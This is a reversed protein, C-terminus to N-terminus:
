IYTLIPEYKIGVQEDMGETCASDSSGPSLASEVQCTSAKHWILRKGKVKMETKLKWRFAEWAEKGLTKPRGSIKKM